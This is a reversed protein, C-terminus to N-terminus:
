RSRSRSQSQSNHNPNYTSARGRNRPKEGRSSDSSRSDSSGSRSSPKYVQAGEPLTSKNGRQHAGGGNHYRRVETKKGVTKTTYNGPINPHSVFQARVPEGAQQAAEVRRHDLTFVSTVSRKGPAEGDYPRVPVKMAALHAPPMQNLAPDHQQMQRTTDEIRRGDSFQDSFGAHMRRLRSPDVMFTEGPPHQSLMDRTERKSYPNPTESTYMVSYGHEQEPPPTRDGDHKAKHKDKRERPM